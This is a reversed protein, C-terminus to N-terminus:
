PSFARDNLLRIGYSVFSNLLRTTRCKANTFYKQNSAYCPNLVHDKTVIFRWLVVLFETM